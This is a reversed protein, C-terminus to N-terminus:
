DCPFAFYRSATNPFVRQLCRGFEAAPLVESKGSMGYRSAAAAYEAFLEVRPVSGEENGCQEYTAWVRLL